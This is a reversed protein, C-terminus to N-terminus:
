FGKIDISKPIVLMLMTSRQVAVEAEFLPRDVESDSCLRNRVPSKGAGAAPCREVCLGAVLVSSRSFGVTAASGGPFGVLLVLSTSISVPVGVVRPLRHFSPALGCPILM